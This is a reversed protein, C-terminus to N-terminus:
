LSNNWVIPIIDLYLAEWTRHCDIGGGRPSLWYPYQRNREYIKPLDNIQVGSKKSICKTFSYRHGPTESCMDKVIRSSLGSGDNGPDFNILILDKNPITTTVARHSVDQPQIYGSPEDLENFVPPSTHNPQQAYVSQIANAMEYCNIGLYSFFIFIFREKITI